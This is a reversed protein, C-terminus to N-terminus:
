VLDIEIPQLHEGNYFYANCEDQVVSYIFYPIEYTAMKAYMQDDKSPIAFHRPHSHIIGCQTYAASINGLTTRKLGILLQRPEMIYFSKKDDAINEIQMMGYFYPINDKMNGFLMGCIENQTKKAEKSFQAILSKAVAVLEM